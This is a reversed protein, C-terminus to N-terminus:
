TLDGAKFKAYGKARLDCAPCKGCGYGWDHKTTRDGEYCTHSKHIVDALAQPGLVSALEFTEAKNLFMLPTMFVITKNLKAPPYGAVLTRNLGVVFENRCDPYGSYDTECMGGYVTDCGHRQAYSYALTLFLANRAPVFSAPVGAMNEHAQSVDQQNGQGTLASDGVDKLVNELQIVKFPVDYEGAIKTAQDLETVHRQGYNFGLGLVRNHRAMAYHLLTTSDQGGSLLVVASHTKAFEDSVRLEDLVSRFDASYEPNLNNM